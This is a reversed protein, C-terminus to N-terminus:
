IGNVFSFNFEVELLSVLRVFFDDVEELVNLMFIIDEFEFEKVVIGFCWVGLLCVIIDVIDFFSLCDERMLFICLLMIKLLICDFELSFMEVVFFLLDQRQNLGRECIVMM